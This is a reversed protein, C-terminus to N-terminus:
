AKHGIFSVRIAGQPHNEPEMWCEDKILERFLYELATDSYRYTDPVNDYDHKPYSFLTSIFVYGGAKLSDVINQAAVLPNYIHEFTNLCIITQYLRPLSTDCLDYRNTNLDYVDPHLDFVALRAEMGHGGIDAMDEHPYNAIFRNILQNITLEHNLQYEPTLENM